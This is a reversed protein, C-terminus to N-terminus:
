IGGKGPNGRKGPQRAGYQVATCTDAAGCATERGGTASHSADIQAWTKGVRSIVQRPALPEGIAGGKLNAVSQIQREFVSSEIGDEQLM